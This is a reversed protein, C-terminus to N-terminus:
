RALLEESLRGLKNMEQVVEHINGPQPYLEVGGLGSIREAFARDKAHGECYFVKYRTHGNYNALLVALDRHEKPFLRLDKRGRWAALIDLDLSTQPAFAYVVDTKLYHGFLIAAYGGMSTGLSFARRVSPMQQRCAILHERIADFDTLESNIGAHYFCLHRDRLIVLNADILGTTSFFTLPDM